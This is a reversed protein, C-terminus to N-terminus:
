KCVRESEQKSMSDSVPLTTHAAEDVICIDFTRGSLLSHNVGLCTVGVVQSTASIHELDAVDAYDMGGETSCRFSPIKTSMDLIVGCHAVECIAVPDNM